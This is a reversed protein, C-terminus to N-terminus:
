DIRDLSYQPTPAKGVDMAFDEFSDLWRSCVIIGRGGYNDYNKHNINYCRNRMHTWAKYEKTQKGHRAQGHRTKSKSMLEPLKCGCSKSRGNRLLSSHVSKETGCICKCIWISQGTKSNPDRNLIEWFGFKKGLLDILKM